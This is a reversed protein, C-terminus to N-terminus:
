EKLKLIDKKRLLGCPFYLKTATQAISTAM